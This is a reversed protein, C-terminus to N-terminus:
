RNCLMDTAMCYSILTNETRNCLRDTAMCYSILTNESINCLRDIAMCYSILTTNKNKMKNSHTKQEIVCGIM